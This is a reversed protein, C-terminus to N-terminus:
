DSLRRMNVFIRLDNDLVGELAVSFRLPARNAVLIKGKNLTKQYGTCLVCLFQPSIGNESLNTIIHLAKEVVGEVERHRKLCYLVLKVGDIGIEAHYEACRAVNGLVKCALFVTQPDDKHEELSRKIQSIGGLDALEKTRIKNSLFAFCNRQVEVDACCHYCLNKSSRFRMGRCIKMKNLVMELKLQPLDEVEYGRELREKVPM